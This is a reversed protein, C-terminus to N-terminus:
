PRRQSVKKEYSMSVVITARIQSSRLQIKRHDTNASAVVNRESPLSRCENSM